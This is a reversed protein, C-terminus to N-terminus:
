HGLFLHCIFSPSSLVWSLLVGKHARDDQFSLKKIQYNYYYVLCGPVHLHSIDPKFGFMREYCTVKGGFLRPTSFMLIHAALNMSFLWFHPPFCAAKHITRAMKKILDNSKETIGNEQPVGPASTQIAIQNAESWRRTEGNVLEGAGDTQICNIVITNVTYGAKYAYVHLQILRQLAMLFQCKRAVGIFYRVRSFDCTFTYGFICGFSMVKFPGIGDIHILEMPASSRLSESVKIAKRPNM